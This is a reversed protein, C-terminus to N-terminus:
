PMDEASLIRGKELVLAPHPFRRRLDDSHTAILLTTGQDQLREFLYMLRDAMREDVNGTPEDALIIRPGTVVARAIAARQQEGGSMTSPLTAQRDKLGVWALIEGVHERIRASPVGAVRLPLAVNEFVTLHNILRFDQFVVGLQRKLGTAALQDLSRTDHGLVIVRGRTPRTSLHILSLLSSKGAGSAGTVYHFSGAPITLNVDRLVDAGQGYRLDVNEFLIM